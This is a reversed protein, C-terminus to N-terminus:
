RSRGNKRYVKRDRGSNGLQDTSQKDYASGNEGALQKEDRQQVVPQGASEPQDYQNGIGSVAGFRSRIEEVTRQTGCKGTNDPRRQSTGRDRIQKARHVAAADGQKYNRRFEILLDEKSINIKFVKTLRKDRVKNGNADLFVIYKRKESWDVRIGNELMKNCFCEISDAEKIVKNIALMINLMWSKYKGQAAKEISRYAGMDFTTIEKNKQCISKQHEVLIADSLDKMDQLEKKSYNFKRGHEFSVSNVIIHTHIHEKDKHTAYCVEYGQFKCWSEVLERAIQNAEELTIDEDKPFSQVFHKYQRGDMKNWARKTSKMEELAHGPDCNYGGILKADTKEKRTIYNLAHGISARSNVAKIIAM